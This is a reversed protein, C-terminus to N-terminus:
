KAPLMAPDLGITGVMSGAYDSTQHEDLQHRAEELLPDIKMREFAEHYLNNGRFAELRRVFATVQDLDFSRRAELRRQYWESTYLYERTFHARVSPDDAGKGEWHGEAMIHLLARLPPCALEITGDEFYLRAAKKQATVINEIGEVFVDLDQTEPRLMDDPLVSGPNSFIRGFYARVFTDTIRYGLRSALVTQGRHEFDRCPELSGERILFAASREEPTMRSWVEPVLLSVDHDVRYDPGIHGAATTFGEYGTVLYSVLANNLDIIAPLANFPGKTLAGESGAGTTSPSKGTLSAIFDMFLEPLEQFHVPNYVALAKIGAARDPPNNRRGPLVANVPTAIPDDRTLRRYLRMGVRALYTSRPDLLDLRTQLYRPNKTPVGDVLRPHAPSVVFDPKGDEFFDRIICQMPETFQDFRIADELLELAEDHNIPQYNSFFNGPQAFDAETQKDYGRHIAEDPRQFLRYECNTVFKWADRDLDQRLGRILRSPVVVSASIDDEMQIKFAPFFDKRLRFTRWSGDPEYGVRLYQTVLKLNRYKLEHGPMGNISDVIFRRRWNAEWDPKYLRKVLLVLDRITDPISRLWDNYDETYDPSPTLLKVVSGLSRKPSLIPRGDPRNRDPDSFRNRFDRNIIAEVQDFDQKIDRVIVPGTIMADAISKSIESKGGGSVTCPKHCFTGEATTGILRWRRGEAPKVMEVKYGSPLVYTKHPLLKLSREVGQRTWTIRQTHLGFRVDAPLYIVDPFNRDIGYGEPHIEMLDACREAAEEFTHDVLTLYESLSFDEGLDYSPFALAGGAHEEECLGHLNAAYSIQTKVEKKCYGFYNDAILTVMVGSQDRCTIKFAGGDNYREDPNTWCMGDRIQRPSADDRHPLGLEKKTLHVLHPALIVCGTQGSWHKLDLGADNDPLFPDGANGFISEVFDLNCVLNGPAFFRIESTKEETFGPVAPCIIPRLLISLFLRAQETQTSTFPLSLIEPPPRLAQRLLNLFVLRPVAKKDAPVALPGETVHFVGKTTRRDSAPNHLVGQRVRTSEVIPSQFTDQDPPLSLMRALGHRELVMSGTPVLIEDPEALDGLARHLFENIRRDAPCLYDRLIRNKERFNALLSAGLELYPYDEARGWIPAGRAALKLNIFERLRAENHATPNENGFGLGNKFDAAM